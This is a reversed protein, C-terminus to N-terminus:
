GDLDPIPRHGDTRGESELFRYRRADDAGGSATRDAGLKLAKNLSVRRDIRAVAASRQQVNASFHDADVGHDSRLVASGLANSERKRHVHRHSDVVVNDPVSM